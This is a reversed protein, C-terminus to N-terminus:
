RQWEGLFKVELELKQGFNNQVADRVRSILEAVDQATAGGLNVIFNAHKPSVQAGGVRLGKLGALEILRGAFDGPPNKFVSGASPINMPQSNKRGTLYEKMDRRIDEPQGQKLVLTVEVVIAPERQLISSRYGFDMDERARLKFSGDLGLLLVERVQDGVSSGYAGANMVIAGGVTGPIGTLNALGSLGSKLATAVVRALSAGAGARLEPGEVTVHGLNRSIKVVIGRVGRDSVLLNSGNGIVTLPIGRERAFSVVMQLERRGAPELFFEAPGGIRWSTHKKLPEAAKVRGPFLSLLDRHLESRYM